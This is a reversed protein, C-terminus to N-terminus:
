GTPVGGAGLLEASTRDAIRVSVCLVGALVLLGPGDAAQALWDELPIPVSDLELIQATAAARAIRRAEPELEEALDLDLDLLCRYSLGGRRAAARPDGPRISNPGTTLVDGTVSRSDGAPM